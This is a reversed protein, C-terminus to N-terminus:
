CLNILESYIWHAIAVTTQQDSIVVARCYLDKHIGTTPTHPPELMPTGIPPTIIVQAVNALM